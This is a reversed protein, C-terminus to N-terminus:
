ARRIRAALALMSVLAMLLLGPGTQDGTSCGSDSKKGGGGGGGGPVFLNVSRDFVVSWEVDNAVASTVVIRLRVVGTRAPTVFNATDDSSGTWSVSGLSVPMSGSIDFLEVTATDSGAGMMWFSATHTAGGFDASFERTATGAATLSEEGNAALNFLLAFTETGTLVQTGLVTMASSPLAIQIPIDYTGTATGSLEELAFVFEQFGSHPATVFYPNTTMGTTLGNTALENVDVWTFGVNGTITYPMLQTHFQTASGGFDVRLRHLREQSAALTGTLNITTLELVTVSPPFVASFNYDIDVTAGTAVIRIRVLGSRSSTTFQDDDQWSGTGSLSSGLQTPTGSTTIEHVAVSGDGGGSGLSWFGISQPTSGFDVLFETGHGTASNSNGTGTAIFGFASDLAVFRFHTDTATTVSASPVALALVLTYTATSGMTEEITVVIDHTGSRVPTLYPTVQILGAASGGSLLATRDAARTSVTGTSNDSQRMVSLATATTGHNISVRHMRRQNGTLSGTLTVLTLDLLPAATPLVLAGQFGNGEGSSDTYTFRLRVTGSRSSTTRNGEANWDAGSGSLASGLVAPSGAVNIEQVVCSGTKLGEVQAWLTVAQATTGFNAHVELSRSQSGPVQAYLLAVRGFMVQAQPRNNRDRTVVGSQVIAGTGLTTCEITGTYTNASGSEDGVTVIFQHMGTLGTTTVSFTSGSGSDVNGAAGTAALGDLNGLFKGSTGASNVTLDIVHTGGGSGFNIDFCHFSEEDAALSGTVPATAQAFLGGAGLAIVCALMWWKGM